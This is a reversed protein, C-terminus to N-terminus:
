FTIKLKQVSIGGFIGFGDDINNSVPTPQAFPDDQNDVQLASRRLYEFTNRSCSYVTIIYDNKVVGKDYNMELDWKIRLNHIKQGGHEIFIKGMLSEVEYQGSIEEPYIFSYYYDPGGFMTDRTALDIKIFIYDGSQNGSELDIDLESSHDIYKSSDAPFDTSRRITNFGRIKTLKFTDPLYDEGKVVGFGPYHCDFRYMKNRKPLKAPDGAFLGGSGVRFSDFLINDEYIRIYASPSNMVKFPANDLPSLSKSLQFVFPTDARFFCNAVLKSEHRPFDEVKETKECAAFIVPILLIFIYSITRM